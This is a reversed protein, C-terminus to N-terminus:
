DERAYENIIQQSIKATLKGLFLTAHPAGCQCGNFTGNYHVNVKFLNHHFNYFQVAIEKFKHDGFIPEYLLKFFNNDDYTSGFRFLYARSFDCLFSELGNQNIKLQSLGELLCAYKAKNQQMQTLQKDYEVDFISRNELSSLSKPVKLHNEKLLEILGSPHFASHSESEKGNKQIIRVDVWGGDSWLIIGPIEPHTFPRNYRERKSEGGEVFGLLGLVYDSLDSQEHASEERGDGIVDKGLEKYVQGHVFMGTIDKPLKSKPNRKRPSTIEEVFSEISVGFYNEIAETNVDKKIREIGGYDNYFGQIPLTFPTKIACPGDNSIINPGELLREEYTPNTILPVLVIPATHHISIRSVGCSVNFSGM